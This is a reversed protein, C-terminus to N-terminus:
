DWDPRGGDGGETYSFSVNHFSVAGTVEPLTMANPKDKIEVPLDIVEFVREFSVM